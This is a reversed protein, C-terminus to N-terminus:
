TGLVFSSYWLTGTCQPEVRWGRSTVWEGDQSCELQLERLLQGDLRMAYLDNCEVTITDGAKFDVGSDYELRGNIPFPRQCALSGLFNSSRLYHSLFSNNSFIGLM